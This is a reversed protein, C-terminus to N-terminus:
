PVPRGFLAEFSTDTHGGGESTGSLAGTTVSGRLASTSNKFISGDDEDLSIIMSNYPWALWGNWYITRGMDAMGFRSRHYYGEFPSRGDPQKGVATVSGGAMLVDDNDEAYLLTATGLQKMNSLCHTRQAQEVAKMLSPQLISMLVALIAIVVLLETLSFRFSRYQRSSKRM